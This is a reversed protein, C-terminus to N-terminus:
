DDTEKGDTHVFYNRIDAAGLTGIISKDNRITITDISPDAAIVEVSPHSMYHKHGDPPSYCAERYTIRDGVKIDRGYWTFHGTAQGFTPKYDAHVMNSARIVHKLSDSRWQNGCKDRITFHSFKLSSSSAAQVVELDIGIISAEGTPQRLVDGIKIPHKFWTQFPIEEGTTEYRQIDHNNSSRM